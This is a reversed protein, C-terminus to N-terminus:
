LIPYGLNIYIIWIMHGLQGDHGYITFGGEFIKELVPPGIEVFSPMFYQHIMYLDHDQSSSSRNLLLTLM